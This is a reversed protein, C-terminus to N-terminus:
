TRTNCKCVMSMALKSFASGKDGPPFRLIKVQYLIRSPIPLEHHGPLKSKGYEM